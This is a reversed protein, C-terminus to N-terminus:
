QRPLRLHCPMTRVKWTDAASLRRVIKRALIMAKRIRFGGFSENALFYEIRFFCWANVITRGLFFFHEKSKKTKMVQQISSAVRICYPVFKHWSFHRCVLIESIIRAFHHSRKIPAMSVRMDIIRALRRHFNRSCFNEVGLCMKRMASDREKETIAIM